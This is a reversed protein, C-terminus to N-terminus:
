SLKWCLAAPSPENFRLGNRAADLDPHREKRKLPGADAVSTKGSPCNLGKILVSALYMIREIECVPPM